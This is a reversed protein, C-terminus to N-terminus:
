HAPHNLLAVDSLERLKSTGVSYRILYQSNLYLLFFEKCFAFKLLVLLLDILIM